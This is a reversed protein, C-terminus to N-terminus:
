NIAELLYVRIQFHLDSRKVVHHFCASEFCPDNVPQQAQLVPVLRERIHSCTFQQVTRRRPPFNNLRHLFQFAYVRVAANM